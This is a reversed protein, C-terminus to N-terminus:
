INYKIIGQLSTIDLWNLLRILHYGSPTTKGYEWKQYTRLNTGVATAVEEQTFGLEKRREKLTEHDLEMTQPGAYIQAWDRVEEDFYYIITDPNVEIKLNCRGGKNGEIKHIKKPNIVKLGIWKMIPVNEEDVPFIGEFTLLPGNRYFYPSSGYYLDNDPIYIRPKLGLAERAENHATIFNAPLYDTWGLKDCLHLYDLLDFVSHEINKTQDYVYNYIDRPEIKKEYFAYELEAYIEELTINDLEIDKWKEKIVDDICLLGTLDNGNWVYFYLPIRKIFSETSISEFGVNQFIHNRLHSRVNNTELDVIEFIENGVVDHLDLYKILKEKDFHDENVYKNILELQEITLM